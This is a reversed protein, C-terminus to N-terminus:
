ENMGESVSHVIFCTRIEVLGFISIKHSDSKVFVVRFANGADEKKKQSFLQLFCCYCCFFDFPIWGLVGSSLLSIPRFCYCCYAVFSLLLNNPLLLLSAFYYCHSIHMHAVNLGSLLM